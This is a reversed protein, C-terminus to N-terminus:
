DQRLKHYQLIQPHLDNSKQWWSLIDETSHYGRENANIGYRKQVQHPYQQKEFEAQCDEGATNMTCYNFSMDETCYAQLNM